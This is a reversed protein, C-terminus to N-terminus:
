VKFAALFREEPEATVVRRSGGEPLPFAIQHAHLAIANPHYLRKSGYLQDGLIPFGLHSLHVRIQHMRGTEPNAEVLTLGEHKELVKIRTLAREGDESVIQHALSKRSKPTDIRKLRADINLQKWPPTGEIIALYRKDVLHKRFANSLAQQGYTDKALICCGTTVRDLRHVPKVGKGFREQMLDLLTPKPAGRGTVVVQNSSKYVVWHHKGQDLISIASFSM